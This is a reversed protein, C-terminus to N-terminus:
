QKNTATLRRGILSPEKQSQMLLSESISSVNQHVDPSDQSQNTLTIQPHNKNVSQSTQDFSSMHHKQNQLLNSFPVHTESPRIFPVQMVSQYFTQQETPKLPKQQHHPQLLQKELTICSAAMHEQKIQKCLDPNLQEYNQRTIISEQKVQKCLHPNEQEHNQKTEIPEQKVLEYLLPNLQEHNQQNNIHASHQRGHELKLNNASVNLHAGHESSNGVSKQSYSTKSASDPM